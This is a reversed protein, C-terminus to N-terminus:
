SREAPDDLDITRSPHDAATLTPYASNSFKKGRYRCEDYKQLQQPKSYKISGDDIFGVATWKDSHGRAVFQAFRGTSPLRHADNLITERSAATALPKAGPTAYHQCTRWLAYM